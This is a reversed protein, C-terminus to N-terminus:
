TWIDQEIELVDIARSNCYSVVTEKLRRKLINETKQSYNLKLRESRATHM